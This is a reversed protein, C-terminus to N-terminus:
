SHVQKIKQPNNLISDEPYTTINVSDRYTSEFEGPITGWLDVNEYSLTTTTMERIPVTVQVETVQMEETPKLMIFYASAAFCVLFLASM